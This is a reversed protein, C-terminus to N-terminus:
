SKISELISYDKTLLVYEAISIERLNMIRLLAMENGLQVIVRTAGKTRPSLHGAILGCEGRHKGHLIKVPSRTM